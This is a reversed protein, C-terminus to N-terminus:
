KRSAKLRRLAAALRVLDGDFLDDAVSELLYADLEAKTMVPAFRVPHGIGKKTAEILGHNILSTFLKSVTVVSPPYPASELSKAYGVPTEGPHDYLWYLLAIAERRPLSRIYFDM